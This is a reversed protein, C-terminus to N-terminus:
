RSRKATAEETDGETVEGMVEEARAELAEVALPVEMSEGVAQMAEGTVEEEDEMRGGSVVVAMTPEPAVEALTESLM